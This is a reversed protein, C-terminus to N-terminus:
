RQLVSAWGFHEHVAWPGVNSRLCLNPKPGFRRVQLHINLPAALESIHSPAQLSGFWPLCSGVPCCAMKNDGGGTGEESEASLRRDEAPRDSRQVSCLETSVVSWVMEGRFVGNEGTSPGEGGVPQIPNEGLM